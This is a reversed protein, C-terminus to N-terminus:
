SYLTYVYTRYEQATKGVIIDESAQKLAETLDALDISAVDDSLKRFAKKAAIEEVEIEGALGSAEEECDMEAADMDIDDENICNTLADQLNVSTPSGGNIGHM